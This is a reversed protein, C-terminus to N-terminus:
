YYFHWLNFALFLVNLYVQTLTEALFSGHFDVLNFSIRQYFPLNERTAPFLYSANAFTKKTPTVGGGSLKINFRPM